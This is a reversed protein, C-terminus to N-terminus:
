KKILWDIANVVLVGNYNGETFRDLTLITKPYNDRIKLFPAMERDFTNKDTMDATVQFYEYAGNKRTVFDVELDGVRGVYVDYGRRRLEFYIVNELSFGFDYKQKPLIFNRLGLDSIYYKVVNKLLEKGTVNIPRVEYFIFSEVLANLYEAITSQSVKRGTSTIYGAIKRVSVPNGVNGALFRSINNLLSLDSIKRQDSSSVHRLAREEVDKVLITNYIGELYTNIKNQDKGLTATFPFGGFKLFDAFSKNADSDGEARMYESFSLPLLNIEIYRGSLLTSLEGSLLYANSGTIYLDVNDKIYLSDVIKEFQNVKQIEDLFIYVPKTFDAKDCIYQYLKHPDTLEEFAFDEFNLSLIQNKKVGDSLLKSRYQALLTSKGSRRIGTIVKIVNKDKWEDLFSLYEHRVIM